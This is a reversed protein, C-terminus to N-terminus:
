RATGYLDPRRDLLYPTARRAADLAGHDVDAFLLTEAEAAACEARALGDPGIVRSLGCYGGPGSGSWNVYAVFLQSEFARAPVLTRPVFEWPRVLATPVILLDTGALAHARVAEPFEVDYCILLGITLAGAKAQVVLRDGSAFVSRDAEGYLHIKRYRAAVAGDADVFQVSNHVRGGTLEPWGYVIAVGARAAIEAVGAALPGDAAEALEVTRAPGLHYGTASMEPTILLTAGGDAARSATRDLRDLFEDRHSRGAVWEPQWCAVRTTEATESINM